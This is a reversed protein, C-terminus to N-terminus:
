NAHKCEVTCKLIICVQYTPGLPTGSQDKVTDVIPALKLGYHLVDYNSTPIWGGTVASKVLQADQLWAKPSLRMSFPEDFRKVRNGQKSTLFQANSISSGLNIDDKDECMVWSPLQNFLQEITASDQSPIFNLNVSKIRYQDFSNSLDQYQDFHSLRFALAVSNSAWGIGYTIVSGGSSSGAVLPDQLQFNMVGGSKWYTLTMIKGLTRTYYSVKPMRRKRPVKALMIPRPVTMVRSSARSMETRARKRGGAMKNVRSYRLSNEIISRNPPVIRSKKRNSESVPLISTGAPYPVNNGFLRNFWQRVVRGADKASETYGLSQMISDVRPDDGAIAYVPAGTIPDLIHWFGAVFIAKGAGVTILGQTMADEHLNSLFYGDNVAEDLALPMYGPAGETGWYGEVYPAVGEVPYGELVGPGIDPEETPLLSWDQAYEHEIDYGNPDIVMEDSEDLAMNFYQPGNEVASAGSLVPADVEAAPIVEYGAETAAIAAGAAETGEVAAYIAGGIYELGEVIPLLFAMSVKFRDKCWPLNIRDFSECFVDFVLCFQFIIL